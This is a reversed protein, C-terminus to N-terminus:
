QARKLAQLFSDPDSALSLSTAEKQQKFVCISTELHSGVEQWQMHYSTCIKGTKAINTLLEEKEFAALLSCGAPENLLKNVIRVKRVRLMYSATDYRSLAQFSPLM